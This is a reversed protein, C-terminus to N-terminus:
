FLRGKNYAIKRQLILFKSLMGSILCFSVFMIPVGELIPEVMFNLIYGAYIGFLLLRLSIPLSALKILKYVNISVNISFLSLFIFPILGTAFLVDLWLNHAYKLGGLYMRYGGMPYDFLQKFAWSYVSFRPDDQTISYKMRGVLLSGEVIERLAFTNTAYLVYLILSLIFISMFIKIIRIKRQELLFYVILSVLFVIGMIFLLTRNGMLASVFLSFFAMIIIMYSFLFNEKRIVISYFLLSVVLTYYTGQLTATLIERSWIDPFGRLGSFYISFGFLITTYIVNFFGHLFNGIAIIYIYNRILSCSQSVVLQGLIYAAIPAVLFIFISYLDITRYFQLIIFYSISFLIIYIFGKDLIFRNGSLFGIILANVILLLFFINGKGFFNLSFLFLFLFYSTKFIGTKLFSVHKL